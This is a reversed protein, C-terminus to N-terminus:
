GATAGLTWHAFLTPNRRRLSSLWEWTAKTHGRFRKYKRSAWRVIFADITRLEDRLKSPYFRGYYRVWGSLVPRVWKAIDELDLDSRFHLRWRRVSRRMRIGATKSVAPIFSVFRKGTRNKALRPRFTFGLFDFSRVPYKGTRNADKCYVIKTKQPHLQLRCEAFRQKLAQHLELAQVESRCHCIADDAYREFPIDPFERDMWCDFAYHLFLNALVPSVVSGQPSGRERDVLTGDPMSVPAKLWRELYLLVWKCDTHRRVARMLLGWDIEDFFSKIDLDLVWDRSWCRQRATALADHASKGPRYGYSDKHFKPELIPELYRKVVMQAIRDSVTPVGLPRAGGTDGKPIDVRRVPPPFYSGSSMRNWIRYLNRKLDREFDEITEGDVGAAGQNAKVQKYAEWVERKPICFPKAKDMCTM